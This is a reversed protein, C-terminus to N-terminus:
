SPSDPAAAKKGRGTQQVVVEHVGGAAEAAAVAAVDGWYADLTHAPVENLQVVRGAEQGKPTTVIWQLEVSMAGKPGDGTKVQGVVTFDADKATDQVVDGLSPLKLLMQQTLARNGDGPAGTVGAFYLKPPRNVLSNPDSQQRVAEIHNLLTVLSAAQNEAAAKFTEPAGDSWVGAPVPAGQSTGQPVGAPNVVSYAPVVSSGKLEASLLLRWEKKGSGGAVAPIEQSQLSAAMADAWAKAAGDTLLAQDPVPIALRAPPPQALRRATAGPNGLLPQPLDGCGALLLLVPLVKFFSV